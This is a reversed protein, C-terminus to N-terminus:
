CDGVVRWTEAFDTSDNGLYLFPARVHVHARDNVETFRRALPDRVVRWIEAYDTWCNRRHSFHSMQMHLQVWGMVQIIHM